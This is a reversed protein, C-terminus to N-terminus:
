IVNELCTLELMEQLLPLTITIQPYIVNSYSRVLLEKFTIFIKYFFPYLSSSLKLAFARFRGLSFKFLSTASPFTELSPSVVINTFRNNIPKFCSISDHHFVQSKYPFRSFVVFPNMSPTEILQLSKNFIFSNPFANPNNISVRIPCALGTISTVRDFSDSMRSKNFTQM